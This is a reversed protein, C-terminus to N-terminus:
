LNLSSKITSYVKKANDSAQQLYYILVKESTIGARVINTKQVLEDFIFIVLMEINTNIM